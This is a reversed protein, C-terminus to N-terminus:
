ESIGCKKLYKSCVNKEDKSVNTNPVLERWSKATKRSFTTGPEVQRNRNIIKERQYPDSNGTEKCEWHSKTSFQVNHELM